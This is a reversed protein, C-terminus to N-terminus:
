KVAPMFDWYFFALFRQCGTPDILYHFRFVWGSEQWSRWEKWGSNETFLFTRWNQGTIGNEADIAFGITQLFPTPSAQLGIKVLDIVIPSLILAAAWLLLSKDACNRFLLLFFGLVAYLLLIDGEWLLFLHVAGMLFLIGLRRYFLRLMSKGEQEGRTLYISFGIGFLLSFLSYFKGEVLTTQLFDAIRDVQFTLFKQKDTEELFGYGSFAYINNLFIGLLALGRMVDLTPARETSQVPSSHSSM